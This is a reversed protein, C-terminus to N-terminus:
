NMLEADGEALFLSPLTFHFSSFQHSCSGSSSDEDKDRHSRKLSIFVKLVSEM